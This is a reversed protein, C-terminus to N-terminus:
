VGELKLETAIEVVDANRGGSFEQFGWLCSFMKWAVAPTPM